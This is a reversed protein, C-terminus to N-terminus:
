SRKIHRALENKKRKRKEGVEVERKIGSLLGSTPMPQHIHIL